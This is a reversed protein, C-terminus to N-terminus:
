QTTKPYLISPTSKQLGIVAIGTSNAYIFTNDQDSYSPSFSQSTLLYLYKSEADFVPNSCNYFGSTVQQSKKNKVDYIFIANHFNDLDRSYALWRSDSSWSFTFGEMNGHSFVVRTLM